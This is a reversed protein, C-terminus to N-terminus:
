GHKAERQWRRLSIQRSDQEMVLEAMGSGNIWYIFDVSNMDRDEDYFGQFDEFFWDWTDDPFRHWEGAHWFNAVGSHLERELASINWFPKVGVLELDPLWTKADRLLRRKPNTTKGVKFLDGNKVIYLWGPDLRPVGFIKLDPRFTSSKEAARV